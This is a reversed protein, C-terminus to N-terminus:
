SLHASLVINTLIRTGYIASLEGRVKSFAADNSLISPAHRGTVQVSFGRQLPYTGVREGLALGAEASALSMGGAGPPHLLGILGTGDVSSVHKFLAGVRGRLPGILPVEIMPNVIVQEQRVDYFGSSVLNSDRPTENGF